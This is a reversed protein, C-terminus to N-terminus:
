RICFSNLASESGYYHVTPVFKISKSNLMLAKDVMQECNDRMEDLSTLVVSPSFEGGKKAAATVLLAMLCALLFAGRMGSKLPLSGILWCAVTHPLDFSHTLPLLQRVQAYLYTCVTPPHEILQQMAPTGAGTNPLVRARWQVTHYLHCISAIPSQFTLSADSTRCRDGPAPLHWPLILREREGHGSSEAWAHWFGRLASLLNSDGSYPRYIAVVSSNRPLDPVERNALLGSMRTHLRQSFVIPICLSPLPPGAHKNCPTVLGGGM